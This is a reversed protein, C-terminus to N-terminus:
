VNTRIWEATFKFVEKYILENHLEHYQNEWLEFTTKHNTNLVYNESAKPSTVTDSSGHMLLVPCNIKFINRLAFLGANHLEFFMGLSIRNHVLPDASYNRIIEPDHSLQEPKIRNSLALFPLVYKLINSVIMTAPDPQRYLRLWPSTVILGSVPQNRRILFNLALTGGMSHGYLIKQDEPFMEDCKSYLIEIDNLLLELSGTHGRQGSSRGHGRQDFSLVSHGEATLLEAWRMYRGSHEGLGHILLIVKGSPEEATWSRAFLYKGDKSTWKYEEIKM